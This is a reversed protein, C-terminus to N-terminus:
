RKRRRATIASATLIAVLEGSEQILKKLDPKPALGCKSLQELWFLAEDAEELAIGLKSTFEAHSRGRGAARHNAAASNSARRLQIATDRSELKFLLPRSFAEVDTAFRALRNRLEQPEMGCFRAHDSGTAIQFIALCDVLRVRTYCTRGGGCGAWIASEAIARNGSEGIERHDGIISQRNGSLRNWIESELNYIDVSCRSRTWARLAGLRGLRQWCRM